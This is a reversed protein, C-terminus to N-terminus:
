LLVGGQVGATPTKGSQEERQEAAGNRDRGQRNGAKRALGAEVAHGAMHAPRFQGRGAPLELQVGIGQAFPAHQRDGAHQLYRSCGGGVAIGIRGVREPLVAVDHQLLGAQEQRAFEGFVEAHERLPSVVADGVVAADVIHVQAVGVLELGASLIQQVADGQVVVGGHLVDVVGTWGPAKWEGRRRHRNRRIRCAGDFAEALLHRAQTAVQQPVVRYVRFEAGVAGGITGERNQSGAGVFGAVGCELAQARVPSQCQLVVPAFAGMRRHDAGVAQLDIAIRVVAQGAARGVAEVVQSHIRLILEDGVAVADRQLKVIDVLALVPVCGRLAVRGVGQAREPALGGIVELLLVAGGEAIERNAAIRVRLEVVGSRGDAATGLAARIARAHDAFQIVQGPPVHAQRQLVGGVALEIAGGVVVISEAAIGPVVVRQEQEAPEHESASFRVHFVIAGAAARQEFLAGGQQQGDRDVEEGLRGQGAFGGLDGEM